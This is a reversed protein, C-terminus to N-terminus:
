SSFGESVKYNFSGFDSVFLCVFLCAMTLCPWTKLQMVHNM